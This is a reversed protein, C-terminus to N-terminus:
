NENVIGTYIWNENLNNITSCTFRKFVKTVNENFYKRLEELEVIVNEVENNNKAHQIKNFMDIGVAVFMDFIHRFAINKENRKEIKQLEKKWDDESFEKLLYRVRLNSFVEGGVLNIPHRPIEYHIFHQIGRHYHDVIVTINKRKLAQNLNWINPMGGCPVDGVNRPAVGNNNQRLWQYYHPNHIRALNTEIQGTRWDFSTHCVTCFMQSCGDIKFIPARCSENPCHKTDKNFLQATAIDDENCEHNEGTKIMHCKSCVNKECLSCKWNSLYGRCENNPCPKQFVRSSTTPEANARRGIHLSNRKELVMGDLHSIEDILQKRKTLLDAIEKNVKRKNIEIEVLHITAPLMSKERDLLINERHLKLENSRFAKSLNEDLFERNWAVNCNMCHPDKTTNLLYTKVCKTCVEYKCINCIVRKRLVGTFHCCCIPCDQDM